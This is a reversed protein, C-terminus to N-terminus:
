RRLQSKKTALILRVVLWLLIFAIIALVVILLWSYRETFPPPPPLIEEFLPNNIQPELYVQPLDKIELYPFLAEIDYEPYRANPNGYYLKYNKSPDYKFLVKRLIGSISASTINIPKDDKNFITLKLYRFNSESYDIILKSGTFKPTSFSFIVDRYEIVRWNQNDNSGELAVERSFNTDTTKIQLSNSPLGSNGLDLIIFSTRHEEDIGQNVIHTPYSIKRAAIIAQRYIEAGTVELPEEEKSMITVKLYRYTSEPYDVNTNRQKFEFKPPSYDYIHGKDNLVFWNEQDNSGEVIVERRFNVSTILIKIQNHLIGTEGLDAIFFQYEGPIFSLNLIKGPHFERVYYEKEVLLKYPIEEKGNAIIRIDSLNPNANRFVEEDFPFLTYTQYSIEGGIKIEKEHRWKKIDFDAFSVKLNILFLFSFIFLVFFIKKM